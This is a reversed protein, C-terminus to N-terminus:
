ISLYDFPLKRMLRKVRPLCRCHAPASTFPCSGLFSVRTSSERRCVERAAAHGVPSKFCRVPKPGEEKKKVPPKPAGPSAPAAKQAAEKAAAVRAKAAEVQADKEADASLPSPKRRARMMLRSQM